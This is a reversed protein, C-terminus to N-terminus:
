FAETQDSPMHSTAVSWRAERLAEALLALPSGTFSRGVLLVSQHPYHTARQAM